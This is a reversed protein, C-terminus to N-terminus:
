ETPTRALRAGIEFRCHLREGRDCCERVPADVLEAVLSEMARCVEPRGHVAAALLCGYGRIVLGGEVEEVENPAGLEDLLTSAGEVRERLDGRIRPWEEALRRGVTRMVEDLKDSSLEEGLVRVLQVVFPIYARSLMLEASPSLEYIVAPRTAGKQQGGERVLGDRQLATLQIRVANHTLDLRTAIENATLPSRRLLAV